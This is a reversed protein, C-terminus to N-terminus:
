RHAAHQRLHHRHVSRWIGVSFLIIIPLALIPSVSSAAGQTIDLLDLVEFGALLVLLGVATAVM